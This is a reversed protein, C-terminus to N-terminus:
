GCSRPTAPLVPMTSWSTLRVLNWNSQRVHLSANKTITRAKFAEAASDNGCYNAIVTRGKEKLRLSIAEGIGRTGGTVIAIRTM